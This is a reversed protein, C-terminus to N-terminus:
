QRQLRLWTRAAVVAARAWAQKSTQLKEVLRAYAASAEEDRGLEALLPAVRAIAHDLLVTVDEDREEAELRTIAEDYMDVAEDTYGLADASRARWAFAKGLVLRDEANSPPDLMAMAIGSAEYLRTNKKERNLLLMWLSLGVAPGRPSARMAPFGGLRTIMREILVLAERDRGNDMVLAAQALCPVPALDQDSSWFSDAAAGFLREAERTEGLRHRIRALDMLAIAHRRTTEPNTAGATEEVVVEAKAARHRLEVPDIPLTM